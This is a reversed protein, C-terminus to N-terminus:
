LWTWCFEWRSSNLLLTLCNKWCITNSLSREVATLDIILFMRNMKQNRDDYETSQNNILVDKRRTISRKLRFITTKRATRKKLKLNRCCFEFLKEETSDDTKLDCRKRNWNKTKFKRSNIKEDIIEAEFIEIDVFEIRRREDNEVEATKSKKTKRTLEIDIKLMSDTSWSWRCNIWNLMLWFLMRWNMLWKVFEVDNMVSMISLLWSISKMWACIFINFIMILLATRFTWDVNSNESNKSDDFDCFVDVDDFLLSTSFLLRQFKSSISKKSEIYSSFNTTISWTMSCM